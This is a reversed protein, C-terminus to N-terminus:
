LPVGRGAITPNSCTTLLIKSDATTEDRPFVRAGAATSGSFEPLGIVTGVKRPGTDMDCVRSDSIRKAESAPSFVM